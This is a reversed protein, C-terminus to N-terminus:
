NTNKGYVTWGSVAHRSEEVHLGSRDFWDELEVRDYYKTSPVSFQDFLDAHLIRLPYKIYYDYPFKKEKIGFKRFLVAPYNSFVRVVLAAIFTLIYLTRLDLKTTYRRIFEYIANKRPKENDYCWIFIEQNSDQLDVLAEFGKQPEPLHHIVGISYIFDFTGKRFPLNFLDGQVIHVNKLHMTNVYAAKVAESLDIGVMEAGSRAAQLIHRGFGCGADLGLKGQFYTDGLSHPLFDNWHLSYEKFIEGFANWQFSFSRLTKQKLIVEQDDSLYNEINQFASRYRKFFEEHYFLVNGILKDPLLRPIGEIVPYERKCENCTLVGDVINEFNRGSFNELQLDGRCEPCVILDLIRDNM